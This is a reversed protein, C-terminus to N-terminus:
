DGDASSSTEGSAGIVGDIAHIVGNSAGLDSEGVRCGAVTTGDRTDIALSMGSLAELSQTSALDGASVSGSVIHNMLVARLDEPHALLEDLGEQLAGFAEDTPAFLTFPGPEGLKEMLGSTKLAMYLTGFQPRTAAVGVITEDGDDGDSGEDDRDKRELIGELDQRFAVVLGLVVLSMFFLRPLRPTHLM